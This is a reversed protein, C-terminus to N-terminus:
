ENPLLLFRPTSAVNVSSCLLDTESLAQPISLILRRDAETMGKQQIQLIDEKTFM